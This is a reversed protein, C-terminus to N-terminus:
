YSEIPLYELGPESTEIRSRLEELLQATTACGLCPAGLATLELVDNILNEAIQKAKTSEFIGAGELNDWCASGAGIAETIKVRLKSETYPLGTKLEKAYPLQDVPLWDPDTTNETNDAM